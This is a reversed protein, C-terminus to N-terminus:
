FLIQHILYQLNMYHWRLSNIEPTSEVFDRIGEQSNTRIKLRIDHIYGEVTRHSIGLISAIKKGGRAHVVCAIVDAERPTFKLGNLILPNTYYM